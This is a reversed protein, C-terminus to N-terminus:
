ESEHGVDTPGDYFSFYIIIIVVRKVTKHGSNAARLYFTMCKPNTMHVAQMVSRDNAQVKKHQKQSLTILKELTM